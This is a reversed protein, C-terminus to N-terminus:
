ARAWVSSSKEKDDQLYRAMLQYLGFSVSDLTSEEALPPSWM